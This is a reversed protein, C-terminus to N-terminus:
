SNVYPTHTHTCARTHVCAHMHTHTRTCAHTHTHARAHMHTHTQKDIHTTMQEPSLGKPSTYLSSHMVPSSVFDKLDQSVLSPPQSWRRFCKASIRRIVEQSQAQTTCAHAYSPQTGAHEQEHAQSCSSHFSAMTTKINRQQTATIGM